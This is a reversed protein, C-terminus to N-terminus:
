IVDTITLGDNTRAGDRSPQVPTGFAADADFDSPLSPTHSTRQDVAMAADLPTNNVLDFAFLAFSDLTQSSSQTFSMYSTIQAQYM